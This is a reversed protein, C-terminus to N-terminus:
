DELAHLVTDTDVNPRSSNRTTLAEVTFGLSFLEIIVLVLDVVCKGILGLHVDYMTGLGGEM